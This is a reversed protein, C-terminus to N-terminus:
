EQQRKRWREHVRALVAKRTDPDLSEFRDSLTTMNADEPLVGGFMEKMDAREADADILPPWGHLRMTAPGKVKHFVFRDEWPKGFPVLEIADIGEMNFFNTVADMFRLAKPHNNAGPEGDYVIVYTEPRSQGIEEATNGTRRPELTAVVKTKDPRDEEDGCGMLWLCQFSTCALPKRPTGHLECGAIGPKLIAHKCWTGPYHVFEYPEGDITGKEGIYLLKCCLRCDGCHRGAM